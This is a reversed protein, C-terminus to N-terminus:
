DLKHEHEGRTYLYGNEKFYIGAFPCRKTKTGVKTCHLNVTSQNSNTISFTFDFEKKMEKKLKEKSINKGFEKKFKWEQNLRDV